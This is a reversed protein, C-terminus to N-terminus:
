DEQFYDCELAIKWADYGTKELLKIVSITLLAIWDLIKGRM